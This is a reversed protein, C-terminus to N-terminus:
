EGAPSLNLLIQSQDPRSWANPFAYLNVLTPWGTFREARFESTTGATLVPIYPMDEEILSQVTDYYPQRQDGGTEPNLRGLAELARDVEPNVYRAANPHAHGGVPATNESHFFYTYVFYPDPAPGQTVVDMLLEFEGHDRAQSWEAYSSELVTLEIGVERLQGAIATAAATYDTWASIVRVTLSLRRGDKAYVGDAGRVYGADELIDEATAPDATMPATRDRLAASLYAADREPLAFGPSIESGTEQFAAANVQERDMAYYIARRVAPDTQPGRCGLEANSCTMLVLQNMPITIVKYGPYDDEVDALDPVPQTLWDVAGEAMAEIGADRGSLAVYRVNRLEPPGDWYAPNATLTFERPAFEGLTFPGTGVPEEVVYTVPNGAASWIHEPVIWTRGLLQPAMMYSPERFRVVLHTPDVVETEGRFGVTNIEEHAALMDFTFKVDDATFDEGDSWTVGERLAISLETGDDNWSFATGLRPVPEDRRAINSFFLPEYVSGQGEMMATAYPNFNRQFDGAVGAYVVLTDDPLRTGSGSGGCGAALLGAAAALAALGRLPRSRVRLSM